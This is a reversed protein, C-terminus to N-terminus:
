GLLAGLVAANAQSKLLFVAVVAIIAIAVFWLVSTKGKQNFTADANVPGTGPDVQVTFQRPRSTGGTFTKRTLVKVRATETAGPAVEMQEPEIDFVLLNDPDFASLDVTVPRNGGNTVEVRHAAGRKGESTRPVIRAQVAAFGEIQVSGEEVQSYDRDEQATARVGYTIAGASVASSRPPNFRIRVTEEAGPFLSVFPPDCRAWAAADGLVNFAFQDVITGTNRIKLEAIAEGGPSASVVPSLLTLAGPM